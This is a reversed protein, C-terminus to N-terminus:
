SSDQPQRQSCIFFLDIVVHKSEADIPLDNSLETGKHCFPEPIISIDIWM